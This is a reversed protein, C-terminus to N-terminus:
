CNMIHKLNIINYVLYTVCFHQGYTGQFRGANKTIAIFIDCTFCNDEGWVPFLFKFVPMRVCVCMCINVYPIDPFGLIHFIFKSIQIFYITVRCSVLLKFVGAEEHFKAAVFDLLEYQHESTYSRAYLVNELV